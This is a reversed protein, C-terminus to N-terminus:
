FGAIRGSRTKEEIIKDQEKRGLKRRRLAIALNERVTYSNLLASGQFVLGVEDSHMHIQGADPELLGCLIKLMTSKGCGSKDVLGLIEGPYVNFTVGKLIPKDVFAKYVDKVEVMPKISGDTKPAQKQRAMQLDIVESCLDHRHYHLQRHLADDNDVRDHANDRYRRRRSWRQNETRNRLFYHHDLSCKGM